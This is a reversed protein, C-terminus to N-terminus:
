CFRDSESLIQYVTDPMFKCYLLAGNEVDFRYRVGIQVVKHFM